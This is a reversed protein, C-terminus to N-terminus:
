GGLGGRMGSRISFVIFDIYILGDFFSKGMKKIYRFRRGPGGDEDDFDETYFKGL